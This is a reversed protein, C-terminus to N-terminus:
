KNIKVKRVNFFITVNQFAEIEHATLTKDEAIRRALDNSIYDDLCSYAIEKLRKQSIKPM